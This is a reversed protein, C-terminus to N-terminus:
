ALITLKAEKRPEGWAGIFFLIRIMKGDAEIHSCCRLVAKCSWIVFM